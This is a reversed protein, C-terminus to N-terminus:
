ELAESRRRIDEDGLAGVWLCRETIGELPQFSYHTSAELLRLLIKVVSAAARCREFNVLPLSTPSSAIESPKQANFLLDHTYIGVFPICAVDTGTEMEARLNYFNRSPTILNELTELTNMDQMPVMEWTKTLKAVENSTLAVALQAMTAFNRYRRCHMAIHIMKIICRAREEIHQTLVIESIAWKVMINFRAIVVEVGHANSNRLFDVWSRSSGSAANKWSMDILDRWDIEILADKEILTFQQALIDSDFALIFPLHVSYKRLSDGAPPAPAARPTEMTRSSPYLTPTPLTQTFPATPTTDPTPLLVQTSPKASLPGEMTPAVAQRPTTLPSSPSALLTEPVPDAMPHSPLEPSSLYGSAHFSNTTHHDEQSMESSLESESISKDDLFTQTDSEKDIAISAMAARNPANPNYVAPSLYFLEQEDHQGHQDLEDDAVSSEVGDCLVSRDQWQEGANGTPAHNISDAMPAVNASSAISEDYLFSEAAVPKEDTVAEVPEEEAAPEASSLPEESPFVEEHGGALHQLAQGLREISIEESGSAHHDHKRANKDYKGELKLLASEIGGDEDDDTIQALRQAEAEFSKRVPGSTQAEQFSDDAENDLAQPEMKKTMQGVSFVAPQLKVTDDGLILSNPIESGYGIFSSRISETYTVFSGVSQSKRLLRHQLDGINRATKLDGGPRRRLVRLPGPVASDSDDGDMVSFDSETAPDFSQVSQVVGSSYRRHMISSLSQQTRSSAFRRHTRFMAETAKPASDGPGLTVVPAKVTDAERLKEDLNPMVPVPMPESRSAQLVHQNLLYSSRRPTDRSYPAPPTNPPTPDGGALMYTETYTEMSPTLHRGSHLLGPLTAEGTGDMIIISQSNITIGADSAPPPILPSAGGDYAINITGQEGVENLRALNEADQGERIANKFDEAVEAGLLDIRVPPRNGNQRRVDQPVLASSPLANSIMVRRDVPSIRMFNAQTPSTVPGRSTLARRVSNVLRKMGSASMAGALSREKAVVTRSQTNFMTTHRPDNINLANYDHAPDEVYSHGPPLINGRVLSGMSPATTLYERDHQRLSESMSNSRKHGHGNRSMTRMPAPSQKTSPSVAVPPQHSHPQTVLKLGDSKSSKSMLVGARADASGSSRVSVPSVTKDDDSRRRAPTMSHDGFVVFDGVQAPRPTEAGTDANFGGNFLSPSMQPPSLGQTEWYSPDLGPDRNGAIGGPTITVEPSVAEGYNPMDWYQACIRRWCKKLESIVNLQVKRIKPDDSLDEVIENMMRCFAVRLDYDMVFDDMFYNLIWHRVAVFTRVRVIMGVEDRRALSWRMRAFLMRALHDSPLFSRYTLFFDSILEYDLFTPSTIEAVLRPPTAATVSDTNQAYRVITADDCAPKFTLANFISPDVSDNPASAATPLTRMLREVQLRSKSDNELSPDM